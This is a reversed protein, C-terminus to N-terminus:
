PRYIWASGQPGRDLGYGGTILVRGANLPAVASFQGALHADGSVLSFTQSNPNFIEAQSDGGALLVNGNPLLVSSGNHKYRPRKMKPGPSFTGTRPDFLESSDYLGRSDREDSGGTILVRGDRLPIGDHKHRRTHMDGVRTFVGTTPDYAEASAYLTIDARRGRHGGVILVRGDRLPVGAHSERAVTMASTPSFRGTAPDFLEASSLFSWEPGVGGAILVRGNALLVAVHGARAGHMSGTPVFTNTTPDFLEASALTATGTGYGGVILVKGSPLLTATHSQRVTVMRPLSAFHGTMPDYSEASKAAESDNTFGGLVLVRGDHLTTATHAMRAISMDATQTVNPALYVTGKPPAAERRPDRSIARAPSLFALTVVAVPILQRTFHAILM